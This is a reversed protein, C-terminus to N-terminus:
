TFSTLSAVTEADLRRVLECVLEVTHLYDPLYIISSHTHIYRAPVGIVVTPVGHGHLHITRADTGGSRREALQLPVDLAIATDRVLNVLPRNMMASPDMIRVQPGQRLAGQRADLSGGGPVDDAPTGELVIAVDPDVSRMAPQAGRTGLEEQVAGVFSLQNPHTESSLVDCAHIGVACGVRNDFAKALLMDPDHLQTFASDPVIPDGVDIGYDEHLEDLSRAGVDIYLNDISMVKERESASLFHPPRSTVVGIIEAGSATCVRVRQALLVHPWWGGLTVFRLFGDDTLSQVMFGVEDMHAELLVRPGDSSGPIECIVNGCNDTRNEGPIERTIIRRVQHECGPAGSAETCAKLLALGRDRM